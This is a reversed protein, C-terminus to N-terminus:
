RSGEEHVVVDTCGLQVAVEKGNLDYHVRFDVGHEEGFWVDAGERSASSGKEACAYALELAQEFSLRAFSDGLAEIFGIDGAEIKESAVRRTAATVQPYRGRPAPPRIRLTERIDQMEFYGPPYFTFCGKDGLSPHEDLLMGGFGDDTFGILHTRIFDTDVTVCSVRSDRLDLYDHM